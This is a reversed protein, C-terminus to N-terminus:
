TVGCLSTLQLNQSVLSNHSVLENSDYKIDPFIHNCISSDSNKHCWNLPTVCYKEPCWILPTMMKPKHLYVWITQNRHCWILPTVMKPNIFTCGLPKIETVGSLHHWWKPDVFTCGLWKSKQSVLYTTDGNQIEFSYGLQMLKQLVLHLNHIPFHSVEPTKNWPTVIQFLSSLFPKTVGTQKVHCWHHSM